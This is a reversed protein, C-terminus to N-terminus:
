WPLLWWLLLIEALYLACLIVVGKATVAMYNEKPFLWWEFWRVFLPMTIFSTLSVSICNAIFTALSINIGFQTLNLFKMLLMVIPFLGLLVLMAAKWNPPGKGTSPDIPVWGPFSTALHTLQEHEIFERSEKLMAAREPSNMWRELQAASDFRIISTWIGGAEEPHQLFMGRYGPYKAQEAEMRASWERYDDERGPIIKSFIVETVSGQQQETSIGAKEMERYSGDEFIDTAEALTETRETSKQWALLDERSRFNLLLTWEKDGTQSPPLLDSGVFGQFKGLSKDHYGKWAAFETDRGERVKVTVVLVATTSM